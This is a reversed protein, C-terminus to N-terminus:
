PLGALARHHPQGLAGRGHGALPGPPAGEAPEAPQASRLDARGPGVARRAGEAPAASRRDARAHRAGRGRRLAPAGGSRARDRPGRRAQPGGAQAGPQRAARRHGRRRAAATQCSLRRGPPMKSTARAITSRPRARRRSTRPARASATSPSSARPCRSRAAAACRGAAACRISTSGSSARRRSCRAHRASLARAQGSPTFVVLPKDTMRHREASLARSGSELATEPLSRGVRRRERRDRGRRGARSRQLWRRCDRDHGMLVDAGKIAGTEEAHLPNMIASTM